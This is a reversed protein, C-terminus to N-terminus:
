YHTIVACLFKVKTQDEPGVVQYRACQVFKIVAYFVVLWKMTV